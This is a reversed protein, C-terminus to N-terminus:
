SIANWPILASLFWLMLYCNWMDQHFESTEFETPALRSHQTQWKPRYHNVQIDFIFKRQSCVITSGRHGQRKLIAVATEDVHSGTLETVESDTFQILKAIHAIVQFHKGISSTEHESPHRLVQQFVIHIFGPSSTEEIGDLLYLRWSSANWSHNWAFHRKSCVKMSVWWAHFIIQLTLDSLDHIFVRENKSYIMVQLLSTNLSKSDLIATSIAFSPLGVPSVALLLMIAFCFAPEEINFESSCALLDSRHSMAHMNTFNDVLVYQLSQGHLVWNLFLQICNM